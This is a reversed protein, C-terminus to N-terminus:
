FKYGLALLGRLVPVRIFSSSDIEPRWWVRFEPRVFWHSYIDWNAGAGLDFFFDNNIGEYNFQLKTSTSRQYGRRFAFGLYICPSIRFAYLTLVLSTSFYDFTWTQETFNSADDTGSQSRRWRGAYDFQLGLKRTLNLRGSIGPRIFTEGGGGQSRPQNVIGAFGAIKLRNQANADPTSVLFTILLLSGKLINKVSM